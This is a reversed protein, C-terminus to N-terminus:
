PKGKLFSEVSRLYHLVETRMLRVEDDTLNLAPLDNEERQFAITALASSIGNTVADTLPKSTM